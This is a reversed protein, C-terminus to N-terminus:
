LTMEVGTNEMMATGAPINNRKTLVKRVYLSGGQPDGGVGHQRSCLARLVIPHSFSSPRLHPTHGKGTRVPIQLTGLYVQRKHVIVHPLGRSPTWNKTDLIMSRQQSLVFYPHLSLAPYPSELQTPTAEAQGNVLCTVRIVM